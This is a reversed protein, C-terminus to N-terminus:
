PTLADISTFHARAAPIFSGSGHLRMAIPAATCATSRRVASTFRQLFASCIRALPAVSGGARTLHHCCKGIWFHAQFRTKIGVRSSGSVSMGNWHPMAGDNGCREPTRAPAAYAGIMETVPVPRAAGSKGKADDTDSMRGAERQLQQQSVGEKLYKHWDKVSTLKEYPARYDNHRYV